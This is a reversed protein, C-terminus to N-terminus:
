HLWNIEPNEYLIERALFASDMNKNAGGYLEEFLPILGKIGLTWLFTLCVLWHESSVIFFPTIKQSSSWAYLSCICKLIVFLNPVSRSKNCKNLLHKLLSSSKCSSINKSTFNQFMQWTFYNLFYLLPLNKSSLVRGEKRELKKLIWTGKRLHIKEHLILSM